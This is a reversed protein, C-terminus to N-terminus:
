KLRWFDEWAETLQRSFWGIAYGFLMGLIITYFYAM